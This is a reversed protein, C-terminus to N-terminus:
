MQIITVGRDSELKLSEGKKCRPCLSGEGDHPANGCKFSLDCSSCYVDENPHKCQPHPGDYPGPAHLRLFTAM